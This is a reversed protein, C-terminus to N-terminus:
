RVTRQRAHRVQQLVEAEGHVAHFHEAPEAGRCPHTQAGSITRGHLSITSGAKHNEASCVTRLEPNHGSRFRRQIPNRPVGPVQIPRGTSRRSPRRRRYRGTDYGRGAATVTSSRNANGRGAAPQEPEFGASLSYWAIQFLVAANDRNVGNGSRHAVTCGQQVGRPGNGPM